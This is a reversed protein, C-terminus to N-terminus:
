STYFFRLFEEGLHGHKNAGLFFVFIVETKVSFIEILSSAWNESLIQKSNVIEKESFLQNNTMVLHDNGVICM